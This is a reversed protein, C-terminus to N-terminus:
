LATHQTEIIEQGFLLLLFNWHLIYNVEYEQKWSYLNEWPVSASTFLYRSYPDSFCFVECLSFCLTPSNIM